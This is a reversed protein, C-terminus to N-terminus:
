YWYKTLRPLHHYAVPQFPWFHIKLDQADAMEGSRGGCDRRFSTAAALRASNSEERLPAQNLTLNFALVSEGGQM